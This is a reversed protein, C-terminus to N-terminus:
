KPGLLTTNTKDETFNGLLTILATGVAQVALLFFAGPWSNFANICGGVDAGQCAALIPGLALVAASILAAVLTRFARKGADNM